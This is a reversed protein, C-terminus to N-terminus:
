EKGEEEAVKREKGKKVSKRHELVTRLQADPQWKEEEKLSRKNIIFM